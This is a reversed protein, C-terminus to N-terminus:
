GAQLRGLIRRREFSLAWWAARLTAPNVLAKACIQRRKRRGPDTRGYNFRRWYKILVIIIQTPGLSKLTSRAETGTRPAIFARSLSPNLVWSANVVPDAEAEAEAGGGGAASRRQGHVGGGLQAARRLLRGSAGRHVPV